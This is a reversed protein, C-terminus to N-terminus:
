GGDTVAYFIAVIPTFVIIFFGVTAYYDAFLLKFLKLKM